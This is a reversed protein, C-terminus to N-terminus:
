WEEDDLPDYHDYNDFSDSAPPCDFCDFTGYCEEEQPPEQPSFLDRGMPSYPDIDDCTACNDEYFRNARYEPSYNITSSSSSPRHRRPSSSPFFIERIEKFFALEGIFKWFSM